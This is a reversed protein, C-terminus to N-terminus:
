MTTRLHWGSMGKYELLTEESLFFQTSMNISDIKNSISDRSRQMTYEMYNQNEEVVNQGMIYFLVSSMIGIPIITFLIIILTFKTNLKQNRLFDVIKKM